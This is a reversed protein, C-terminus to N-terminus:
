TSIARTKACSSNTCRRHQEPWAQPIRHEAPVKASVGKSKRTVERLERGDDHPHDPAHKGGEMDVSGKNNEHLRMQFPLFRLRKARPKSTATKASQMAGQLPQQPVRQEHGDGLGAEGVVPAGDSHKSSLGDLRVRLRALEM